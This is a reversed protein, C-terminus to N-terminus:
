IQVIKFIILMLPQRYCAQFRMCSDLQQCELVDKENKYLKKQVLVLAQKLIRTSRQLQMCSNLLVFFVNFFEFEIGYYDRASIRFAHYKLNLKRLNLMTDIYPM